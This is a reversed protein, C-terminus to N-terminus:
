VHARGIERRDDNFAEDDYHAHSEFIGMVKTLELVCKAFKWDIVAAIVFIGGLSLGRSM